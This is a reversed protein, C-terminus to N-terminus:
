TNMMFLSKDGNTHKITYTGINLTILLVMHHRNTKISNLPLQIKLLESVKDNSNTGISYEM